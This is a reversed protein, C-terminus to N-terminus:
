GSKRAKVQLRNNVERTDEANKAIQEALAAEAESEVTGSLTVVGDVSDVNIDLGDTNENLLLRSKVNATLTANDINQRWQAKEEYSSSKRAAEAATKDVTLQNKVKKIGEVSKAVEGALDKDIESEVAGTLYVTGHKVETDIEFSNLQDNFLLATELKGDLWADSMMQSMDSSQEASKEAGKEQQKHSDAFAPASALCLSAFVIAAPQLFRMLHIPSKM